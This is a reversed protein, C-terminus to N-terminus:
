EFKIINLLKEGKLSKLMNKSAKTRMEQISSSSYYASHPNIIIRTNLPDNIDMWSKILDENKSPPEKPLVDLGVAALKNSKLGRLVVDSNEIIAGRATNILITNETLLNIFNDNIMGKTEDTLTANISIISSESALDEIKEFRKINLVKEYGSPVHPDYFGIQMKFSKMRLALASGIRGLGIIGLKHESTRKIPHRKDTNIVESQWENLKHKTQINYLNVKRILNLILASSTDAVEDVGYDPTNAFPINYKHLAKRDINDSGVGYRIVAKCKKLKKITHETIKTHWVLIGDAEAIEDPFDEENKKNLCIVKADDGLVKQEIEPNNIYDTIFVKKM